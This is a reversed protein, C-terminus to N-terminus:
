SWTTREAVNLYNCILSTMEEVTYRSLALCDMHQTWLALRTVLYDSSLWATWTSHGYRLIHSWTTVLHGTNTVVYSGPVTKMALYQTWIALHPVLYDSSSWDKDSCLVAPPRRSPWTSHGYLVHSWTTVLHGTKTVVYRQWPGDQHDLVTDM